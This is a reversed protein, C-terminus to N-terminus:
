IKFDPFYDLFLVSFKFTRAVSQLDVMKKKKHIKFFDLHLIKNKKLM